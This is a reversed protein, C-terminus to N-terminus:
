LFRYASLERKLADNCHARFIHNTSEDKDLGYNKTVFELFDYVGYWECTFFYNKILSRLKRFNAPMEDLKFKFFMTLIRTLLVVIDKDNHKVSPNKVKDWYFLTLGNWLANKLDEDLSDTQIVSKIPSKGIRQSFSKM